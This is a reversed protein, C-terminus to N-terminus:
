PGSRLDTVEDTGLHRDDANVHWSRSRPLRLGGGEALDEFVIYEGDNAAEDHHFRCGVLQATDRDFYFYWTDAGVDADYTARVAQVPQDMFTTEIVDPDLHAGPDAIKMPLGALFGYYSRWFMGNERHLRMTERVDVALDPEFVGDVAASWGDASTEYALESGRYRGVLSFAREDAGFRLEVAVREAGAGDTGTWSMSIPVRGWAGDPDHFTVSREVLARAPSAEAADPIEAADPPEGCAILLATLPLVALVLGAASPYRM